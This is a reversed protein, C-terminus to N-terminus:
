HVHMRVLPSCDLEVAPGGPNLALIYSALSLSLTGLCVPSLVSVVAPTSVFKACAYMNVYTTHDPDTSDPQLGPRESSPLGSLLLTLGTFLHEVSLIFVIVPVNVDLRCTASM